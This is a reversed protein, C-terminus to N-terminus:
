ARPQGCAPCVRPWEGTLVADVPIDAARAVLQALKMSPARRPSRMKWLAAETTELAEALAAPSRLQGGLFLLARRVNAQEVVSLANTRKSRQDIPRRHWVQKKTLISM